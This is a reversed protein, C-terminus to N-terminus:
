EYTAFTEGTFRMTFLRKKDHNSYRRRKSRKALHELAPVTLLPMGLSVRAVLSVCM